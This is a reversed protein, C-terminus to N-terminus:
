VDAGDRPKASFMTRVQLLGSTSTRGLKRLSINAIGLMEDGGPLSFIGGLDGLDKLIDGALRECRLCSAVVQFHSTHLSYHLGLLREKGLSM